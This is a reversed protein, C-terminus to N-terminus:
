FFTYAWYDCQSTVIAFLSIVCCFFIPPVVWVSNLDFFVTGAAPFVSQVPFGLLKHSLQAPSIAIIPRM